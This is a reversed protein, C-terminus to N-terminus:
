LLDRLQSLDTIEYTPRLEPPATKGRRNLWLTDIGARIGGLIDSSLSDGIMLTKERAFGPIRAFCWDFYGLEPKHFGTLESIFLGEFCPGIGASELRAYQTEAVGNSALFLRYGRSVLYDLAERAGPLFYHGVGLWRRYDAEFAAPDADIGLEHFLQRHREVLLQDRDAEGRELKEWWSINITHYRDLLAPTQPIHHLALARGYAVAEAAHFDLITDDLDLLLIEYRKM